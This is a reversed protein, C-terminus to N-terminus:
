RGAVLDVYTFWGPRVRGSATRLLVEGRVERSQVVALGPLVNLFGGTGEADTVTQGVVPLGDVFAFPQGGRDNTFRVGPAPNTDCDYGRLLLHGMQPDIAVGQSQTLALFPTQGILLMPSASTDAVLAGDIFLVAPVTNDSLVRFFGSFNRPVRARVSGDADPRIGTAMPESCDIDLPSCASVELGPPPQRTITDAIFITYTVTSNGLEQPASPAPEDALCSWRPDEGANDAPNNTLEANSLTTDNGDAFETCSLLGCSSLVLCATASLTTSLTTPLGRAWTCFLLLDGTTM